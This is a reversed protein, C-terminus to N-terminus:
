MRTYFSDKSCGNLNGGVGFNDFNSPIDIDHVARYLDYEM